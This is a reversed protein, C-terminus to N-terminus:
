SGQRWTRLVDRIWCLSQPSIYLFQKAVILLFNFTRHSLSNHRQGPQEYKANHATVTLILSAAPLEGLMRWLKAAVQARLANHLIGEHEPDM